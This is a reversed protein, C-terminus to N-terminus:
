YHGHIIKYDLTTLGVLRSFLACRIHNIGFKYISAYTNRFDKLNNNLRIAIATSLIATTSTAAISLMVNKIGLSVPLTVGSGATICFVALCISCFILLSAFREIKKLTKIVNDDTQLDNNNDNISKLAISKLVDRSDNKMFNYITASM